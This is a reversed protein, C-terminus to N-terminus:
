THRRSNRSTILSCRDHIDPRVMVGFHVNELPESPFLLVELPPLPMHLLIPSLVSPASKTITLLTSLRPPNLAIPAVLRGPSRAECCPARLTRGLVSSTFYLWRLRRSKRLGRLETGTTKQFQLSGNTYYLLRGGEGTVSGRAGLSFECRLKQSRM